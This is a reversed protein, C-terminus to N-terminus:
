WSQLFSEHDKYFQTKKHKRKKTMYKELWVGLEPRVVQLYHERAHTKYYNRWGKVFNIFRKKVLDVDYFVTKENLIERMLVEKFKEVAKEPVYASDTNFYIGLFDFKEKTADVIKTKSGPELPHLTLQMKSAENCIEKYILNLDNVSKALIIMDDLYRYGMVDIKGSVREVVDDLRLGYYSALLPSYALGQPIGTKELSLTSFKEVFEENMSIKNHISRKVLDYLAKEKKSQFKKSLSILLRKRNISSFYDKFDLCLVFHKGAVIERRISKLTQEVQKKDKVVGIGLASRKLLEAELVKRVPKFAATFVIRDSPHPVLLPRFKGNKKEISVGKYKHLSYSELSSYYADLDFDKLYNGLANLEECSVYRHTPLYNKRFQKAPSSLAKVAKGIEEKSFIKTLDIKKIIVIQPSDFEGSAGVLGAEKFHSVSVSTDTEVKLIVHKPLFVFHNLRCCVIHGSTM